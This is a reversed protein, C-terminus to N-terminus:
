ELRTIIDESVLYAWFKDPVVLSRIAKIESLTLLNLLKM